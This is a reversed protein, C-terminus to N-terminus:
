VMDYIDYRIVDYGVMDYRIDYSIPCKYKNTQVFWTELNLLTATMIRICYMTCTLNNGM